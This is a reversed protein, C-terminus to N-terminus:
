EYYIGKGQTIHEELQRVALEGNKEKLARVIEEHEKILRSIIDPRNQINKSDRVTFLRERANQYMSIFVSNGVVELLYQHFQADEKLFDFLENRENAKKQKRIIKELVIFDKTEMKEIAQKLSYTEIAVRMDNLDIREKISLERIIIGQNSLIEVFGEHQLRHLAERIPTRSMNLEEVLATESTHTEEGKLIM